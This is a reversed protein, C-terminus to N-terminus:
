ATGLEMEVVMAGDWRMCREVYIVHMYTPKWNLRTIWGKGERYTM